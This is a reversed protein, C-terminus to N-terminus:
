IGATFNSFREKLGVQEIIRQCQKRDPNNEFMSVNDLISGNFLIDDAMQLYCLSRLSPWDNAQEGDISVTGSQPIDLGSLLTLLTTKGTGSIGFIAIKEKRHISISVADLIRSNEDYQFSVNDFCLENNFTITSIDADEEQEMFDRAREEIMKNSFITVWSGYFETASSSFLQRFFMFTYFAAFTLSGSIMTAVVIVMMALLEINGILTYMTTQRLGIEQQRGWVNIVESVHDNSRLIRRGIALASKWASIGETTELLFHQQAAAVIESETRLAQIQAIYFQTIAGTISM